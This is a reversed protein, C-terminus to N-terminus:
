SFSVIVACENVVSIHYTKNPEIVPLNGNAWKWSTPYTFTTGNGSSIFEFSYEKKFHNSYSGGGEIVSLTTREGFNQHVGGLLSFNGTTSNTSLDLYDMSRNICRFYTGDFQYWRIENATFATYNGTLFNGYFDLLVWSKADTGRLVRVSCNEMFRLKIIMGPNPASLNADVEIVAGNINNQSVEIYLENTDESNGINNIADEVTTGDSMYTAKAHGKFYILENTSLDKADKIQRTAM